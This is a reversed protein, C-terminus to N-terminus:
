YFLMDVHELWLAANRKSIQNALAQEPFIDSPASLIEKLTNEFLQRNQTPLAHYKAMLFKGMLYKGENLQIAKSFHEKSREPDGGIMKPRNGYYAGFFLHPGGFYFNEDLQLVRRMMLEVKPLDSIHEPKNQELNIISGWAYAMWFLAPIDSHNFHQLERSFPDLDQKLVTAFNKHSKLILKLAYQKARHYFNVARATQKEKEFFNNEFRAKDIKWEIFGFAYQAFSSSTVLLLESNNPSTELLGELLKLNGAIAQEALELDTEREFAPMAKVIISATQNTALKNLSCSHFFIHLFTLLLISIRIKM